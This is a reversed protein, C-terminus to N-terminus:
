NKIPDLEDFKSFGDSPMIARKKLWIVLEKLEWDEQYVVARGNALYVISENEVIRLQKVLLKNDKSNIYVPQVKIKSEAESTAKLVLELGEQCESSQCDKDSTVYALMYEHTKFLAESNLKNMEKFGFEEFVGEEQCKTTSLLLTLTLTLVWFKPKTFNLHQVM